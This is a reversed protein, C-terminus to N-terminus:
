GCRKQTDSKAQEFHGLSIEALARVGNLLASNPNIALGADAAGLAENARRSLRPLLEECLVAADNDPALAIAREAQGLMKAEYDTEPNTWGSTKEHLYVVADGALAEVDNPDIKLAQEFLTRAADNNDKTLPQLQFLADGRM